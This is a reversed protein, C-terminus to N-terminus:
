GWRVEICSIVKQMDLKVIVHRRLEADIAQTFRQQSRDLRNSHLSKVRYMLSGLARDLDYGRVVLAGKRRKGTEENRLLRGYREMDVHRFPAHGRWYAVIDFRLMDAVSAIGISRLFRLGAYRWEIHICPDERTLHCLLDAYAAIHHHPGEDRIDTYLTECHRM